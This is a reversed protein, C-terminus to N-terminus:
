SAWDGFPAGGDELRRSAARWPGALTPVVDESLASPETAEPGVSAAAPASDAVFRRVVLFFASVAGIAPATASPPGSSAVASAGLRRAGRRLVSAEAFATSVLGAVSALEVAAGFRRVVRVLDDADASAGLSASAAVSVVAGFRRVVGL